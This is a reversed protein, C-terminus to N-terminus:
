DGSLIFGAIEEAMINSGVTNVHCCADIYITQNNSLYIDTLDKYRIGSKKLRRGSQILSGYGLNVFLNVSSKESYANALEQENLVKSGVIYQNPQLFHFYKVDNAKALGNLTESSISWVSVIDAIAPRYQESSTIPGYSKPGAVSFPLVSTDSAQSNEYGSKENNIKKELYRDYTFWLSKLFMDNRFFSANFKSALGLREREHQNINFIEKSSVQKSYALWNTPYFPNVGKPLNYMMPMVLDNFGDINVLYDFEAGLSLLYAFAMLQQPQKYGGAAMNVFHIDKNRFKENKKLERELHGSSNIFFWAAVSGGTIGIIVESARKMRIPSSSDIFGYENIPIGNHAEPKVTQPNNTYGLYPHLSIHSYEAGGGGSPNSLVGALRENAVGISWTGAQVVYACYGILETAAFIILMIVAYGVLKKRSNQQM